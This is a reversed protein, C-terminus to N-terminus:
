TASVAGAIIIADFRTRDDYRRRLDLRKIYVPEDALEIQRLLGVIDALAVDQLRLEVASEEIGKPLKRRTPNMSAIAEAAVATSTARDIFSFLSFDKSTNTPNEKRGLEREVRQITTALNRMNGLDRSLSTIRQQMRMRNDVVPEILFLYVMSVALLAAFSTVLRLERPNLRGLASAVAERAMRLTNKV